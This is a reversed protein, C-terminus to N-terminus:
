INLNFNKILKLMAAETATYYSNRKNKDNVTKLNEYFVGDKYSSLILPHVYYKRVVNRTNGLAKSANDLAMLINKDIDTNTKELGLLTEFCILSASWTRFDKATFFNSTIDQLYENVMSSDVTHKEGSEDYYKFLEWGPIEECQMVLKILRKNRITICHKKGRKGVFEFTIKDKFLDVHKSRLTSLGYTKNRKAYQENGIRIHTEELLKVILALVKSKTFKKQNLDLEAQKRIQPLAKGFAHMKYFKTQNRIRLWKEHYRYQKRLRNDRGVAQLHGNDLSSIKVKCWAPPIVLKDIRELDNKEKLLKGKKEYIFEDNEKIRKINLHSKNVYVLDLYELANEPDTIIKRYLKNQNIVTSM